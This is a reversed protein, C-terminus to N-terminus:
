GICDEWFGDKPRVRLHYGVGAPLWEFCEISYHNPIEVINKIDGKKILEKLFPTFFNGVVKWKNSFDDKDDSHITASVKLHKSPSVLTFKLEYIPFEEVSESVIMVDYKYALPIDKLSIKAKYKLRDEVVEEPTIEVNEIYDVGNIIFHLVRFKDREEQTLFSITRHFSTSYPSGPILFYSIFSETRKVRIRKNEKDFYIDHHRHHFEYFEDSDICEKMKLTMYNLKESASQDVLKNPVVVLVYYFYTALYLDILNNERYENLRKLISKFKYKKSEILISKNVLIHIKDVVKEKPFGKEVRSLNEKFSNIVAESNIKKLNRVISGDFNREGRVIYSIMPHNYNELEPNAYLNLTLDDIGEVKAIYSLLMNIIKKKTIWTFNDKSILSEENAELVTEHVIRIFSGLRINKDLM